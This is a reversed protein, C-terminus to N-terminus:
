KSNSEWENKANRSYTSIRIDANATIHCNTLLYPTLGFSQQASFLCHILIPLKLQMLAAEAEEESTQLSPTFHRTTAYLELHTFCCGSNNTRTHMHVIDIADQRLM